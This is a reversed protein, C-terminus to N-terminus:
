LLKAVNKLKILYKKVETKNNEAPSWKAFLTERKKYPGSTVEHFLVDKKILITHFCPKFLKYYFMKGSSYKGMKIVKIPSGYNNFFIVSVEGNILHFSELKNLHKHPRVYAGKKHFILMEHIKDNPSLHSCIRSKLKVLNIRKKIFTTNKKSLFLYNNPKRPFYASTSKSNNKWHNM